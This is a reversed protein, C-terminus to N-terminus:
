ADARTSENPGQKRKCSDYPRPWNEKAKHLRAYTGFRSISLTEAIDAIPVGDLDHLILVARRSLPVQELGSLLLATLERSELSEEPSPAEDKM